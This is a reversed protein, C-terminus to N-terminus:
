VSITFPYSKKRWTHYPEYREREELAVGTEYRCWDENWEHFAILRHDNELMAVIYGEYGPSDCDHRERFELVDYLENDVTITSVNQERAKTIKEVGKEASIQNYDKLEKNLSRLERKSFNMGEREEDLSTAMRIQERVDARTNDSRQTIDLADSIGVLEAKRFVTDCSDDTRSDTSATNLVDRRLRGKYGGMDTKYELHEYARQETV